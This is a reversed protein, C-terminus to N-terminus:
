YAPTIPYEKDLAEFYARDALIAQENAAQHRLKAADLAEGALDKLARWAELRAENAKVMADRHPMYDFATRTNSYASGRTVLGTLNHGFSLQGQVNAKQNNNVSFQNYVAIKSVQM